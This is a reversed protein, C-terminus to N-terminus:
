NTSGGVAQVLFYQPEFNAAERAECSGLAQLYTKYYVCLQCTNIKEQMWDVPAVFM